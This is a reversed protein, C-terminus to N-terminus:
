NDQGWRCARHGSHALKTCCMNHQAHERGTSPKGADLACRNFAERWQANLMNASREGRGPGSETGNYDVGDFDKGREPVWSPERSLRYSYRWNEGELGNDM